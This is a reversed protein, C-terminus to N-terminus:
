TATTTWKVHPIARSRRHVLALLIIAILTLGDGAYIDAGRHWTISLHSPGAPLTLATLGDDRHVDPTVPVGNRQIRWDPFARLNLVLIAPGSLDVALHTPARVARTMSEPVDDDFGPDENPNRVTGPAPANPQATPILWYGPSDTRLVDNDGDGSTYEDMPAFGYGTRFLDAMHQAMHPVECAQRYLHSTLGAACAAYALGALPAVWSRAKWNRLALAFGLALVVALVTLWRWPFQMFAMEPAIHWVFGSVPLLLFLIFGFVISLALRLRRLLFDRSFTQPQLFLWLLVGAGAALMVVALLSVTHNVINHPEWRTRQFLYNDQYRLNEIMVMSSQVFRREVAAPLLYAGPLALGLLLAATLPIASSRLSVAATSEGSATMSRRRELWPFLLRTGALLVFTYTAMIGAPVNTLWALALALAVPVVPLQRDIVLLFLWPMWVSALLEAYAAREFANFFMYPNALYVCAAVLAANPGALRRAVAHMSFGAGLMAAFIFANPAAAVPLILTLFAGWMWSLPPYFLFRPEGTQWAASFAWQPYLVGHHFQAAAEVWNLLHFGMDHGCSTGFFLLPSLAILAALPLVIHYRRM